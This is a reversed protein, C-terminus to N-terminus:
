DKKDPARNGPTKKDPAPVPDGKIFEDPTHASGEHDDQANQHRTTKPRKEEAEKPSNPM